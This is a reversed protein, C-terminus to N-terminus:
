RSCASAAGDGCRWHSRGQKSPEPNVLCFRLWFRWATSHAAPLLPTGQAGAGRSRRSGRSPCPSRDWLVAIVHLDLMLKEDGMLGTLASCQSCQFKLHPSGTEMTVPSYKTFHQCGWGVGECQRPIWLGASCVFGQAGSGPEPIPSWGDCGGWPCFDQLHLIWMEMTSHCSADEGQVTHHCQPSVTGGRTLDVWASLVAEKPNKKQSPVLPETSSREAPEPSIRPQSQHLCSRCVEGLHSIASNALRILTSPRWTFDSREAQWSTCLSQLFCLILCM